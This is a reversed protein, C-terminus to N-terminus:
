AEMKMVERSSRGRESQAPIRGSGNLEPHDALYAEVSALMSAASQTLSSDASDDQYVVMDVRKAQVRIM